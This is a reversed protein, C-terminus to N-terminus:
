ALQDMAIGTNAAAFQTHYLLGYLGNHILLEEHTGQEVVVGDKLVIISDSALITSLRHAIVITTRHKMLEELAKQVYAESQSDLHSTAEDLILIRPNKLIARAIAIRQREGGSLRHGREGVITHYGEPLATIFDDIYAKRCADEVEAQTADEKAFRMNDLLSGYFLYPEQTVFGIHSRLSEMTVQKIDMGDIRIIGSSPEYLRAILSILTSKGAGSPGVLAMMRGPEVKFSINTLAPTGQRYAFHVQNFEVRGRVAPMVGANPADEIDPKLDLYEFIRQFIGLAASMELHVSLLSSLPDYLRGVLAVFAVVSGLTMQDNMVSWGGYLYILAMGVPNSVGAAMGYWRGILSLRLEKSKVSENLKTYKLLQKQEQGFLRTLLVGSVSFTEALQAAMEGRTIQVELRLNKRLRSVRRVPLLLLPVVVLSLLAMEWNLNVLIIGTAILQAAQTIASVITGTIAGQVAQVDGTIRQIIEGSRSRTFFAMSQRQLNRFLQENLDRIVSQGTKNNMHTQWVNLLGKGLPSALMLGAYLLLLGVDHQPIAIDVIEKTALPAGLGIFTALLSLILILLLQQWYPRFLM